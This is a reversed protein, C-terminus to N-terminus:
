QNQYFFDWSWGPSDPTFQEKSYADGRQYLYYYRKVNAMVSIKAMYCPTGNYNIMSARVGVLEDVDKNIDRDNPWDYDDLNIFGSEVLYDLGEKCYLGTKWESQFDIIQRFSTNEPEFGLFTLEHGYGTFSGRTLTGDVIKWNYVLSWDYLDDYYFYDSEKERELNYGGDGNSYASWVGVAFDNTKFHNISIVDDHCTRTDKDYKYWLFKVGTIDVCEQGRISFKKEVKGSGEGNWVQITTKGDGKYELTYTKPDVRTVSVIAPEAAKVNVDETAKLTVTNYKTAYLDKISEEHNDTVGAADVDWTFTKSQRVETISIDFPKGALQEETPNHPAEPNDKGCSAIFLTGIALVVTSTM